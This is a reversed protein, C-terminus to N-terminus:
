SLKFFLQSLIKNSATVLNTTITKPRGILQKRNSRGAGTLILFGPIGVNDALQVDRKQDGILYSHRLDIDLDRVAKKILKTKPKRCDCNNEPLHPCFYIGDIRIGHQALVQKFRLHIKSLTELTFYGRGIGSQNTIVVLKYGANQLRKLGRFASPYFKLRNPDSLYGRENLITGDRDLFVAPKRKKM